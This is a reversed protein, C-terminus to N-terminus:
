KTYITTSTVEKKLLGLEVFTDAWDWGYGRDSYRDCWDFCIRVVDEFTRVVETTNYRLSMVYEGDKNPFFPLIAKGAKAFGFIEYGDKSLQVNIDRKLCQAIIENYPYM